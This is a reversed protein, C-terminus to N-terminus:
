PTRGLLSTLEKVTIYKLNKTDHVHAGTVTEVKKDKFEPPIGIYCMIRKFALRGKEQKYPLMGRIARKMFYDPRKEFFPGAYPHGRHMKALYHTLINKKNGTIVAHEANIIDIKEGKLAQKAAYSALRGVILNTADILM